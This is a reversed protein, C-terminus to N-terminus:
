LNTPNVTFKISNDSFSIFESLEIEVPDMSALIMATQCNEITVEPKIEKQAMGLDLDDSIVFSDTEIGNQFGKFSVEMFPSVGKDSNNTFDYTIKLCPQDDYSKILSFGTIVMSHKGVTLPHGVISEDVPIEPEKAEEKAEETTEETAAEKPEDAPPTESKGCGSFVGLILVLALTISLVKKM